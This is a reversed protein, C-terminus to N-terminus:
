SFPDLNSILYFVHRDACKLFYGRCFFNQSHGLMQFMTRTKWVEMLMFIIVLTCNKVGVQAPSQKAKQFGFCCFFTKVRNAWCNLGLKFSFHARNSLKVELCYSIICFLIFLFSSAFVLFSLYVLLRGLGMLTIRKRNKEYWIWLIFAMFLLFGFPFHMQKTCFIVRNQLRMVLKEVIYSNLYGFSLKSASLLYFSFVM